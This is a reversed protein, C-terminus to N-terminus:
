RSRWRPRHFGTCMQSRPTCWGLASLKVAPAVCSSPEHLEGNGIWTGRVQIAVTRRGRSVKQDEEHVKTRFVHRQTWLYCHVHCSSPRGLPARRRDQGGHNPDFPQQTHQAPHAHEQKAHACHAVGNAASRGCRERSNRDLMVWLVHTPVIVPKNTVLRNCDLEATVTVKTLRTFAPSRVMRSDIPTNNPALMPVVMVTM